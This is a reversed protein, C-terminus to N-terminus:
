TNGHDVEELHNLQEYRDAEENVFNNLTGKYPTSLILLLVDISLLCVVAVGQFVM